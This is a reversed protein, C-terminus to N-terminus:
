IPFLARCSHPQPYPKSLRSPPHSKVLCPYPRLEFSRHPHTSAARVLTLTPAARFLSPHPQLEFSRRPYPHLGFSHPPQLSSPALIPAARLCLHISSSFTLTSAARSLRRSLLSPRHLTDSKVLRSIICQHPPLAGLLRRKSLVASIARFSQHTAAHSFVPLHATIQSPSTCPGRSSVEVGSTSTSRHKDCDQKAAVPTHSWMSPIRRSSAVPLRINTSM